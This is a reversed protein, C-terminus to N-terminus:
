FIFQSFFEERYVILIIKKPFNPRIHSRDHARKFTNSIISLEPYNQTAPRRKKADSSPTRLSFFTIKKSNKSIYINSYLRNYIIM